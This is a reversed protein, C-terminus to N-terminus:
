KPFNFRFRDKDSGSAYYDAIKALIELDHAVDIIDRSQAARIIDKAFSSTTPDKLFVAMM